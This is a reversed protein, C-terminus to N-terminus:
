NRSGTATMGLKLKLQMFDFDPALFETKTYGMLEESKKNVYVIRGGKHISIMDPSQETLAKFAVDTETLLTNEVDSVLTNSLKKMMKKTKSTHGKEPM